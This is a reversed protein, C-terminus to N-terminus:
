EGVLLTKTGVSSTNGLMQNNGLSYVTTGTGQYWGYTNEAVLSGGISIVATGGADAIAGFAFTTRQITCRTVSIRATAGATYTAAVPGEAGGSFVTDSVTATTVTGGTLGRVVIGVGNDLVRTSAITGRAGDILEIAYSGNDRLTSDSVKLVGTGVVLIGRGPVNRILSNEITLNSAGTMHVGHTGPTAGAVPGIVVNRLAVAIGDATIGIASGGNIAVLSGVAGPVALISVSRDITVTGTNYNASDLMWIEGGSAVATVAVPLLRCPAVLTCPNADSGDSALYARFIQAQAASCLFLTSVFVFASRLAIRSPMATEM